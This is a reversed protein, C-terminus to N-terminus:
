IVRVTSGCLLLEVVDFGVHIVNCLALFGSDGMQILDREVSTSDLLDALRFEDFAQCLWLVFCDEGCVSESVEQVIRKVALASKVHCLSCM